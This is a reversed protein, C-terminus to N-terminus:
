PTPVKSTSSPILRSSSTASPSPSQKSHCLAAAAPNDAECELIKPRYDPSVLRWFLTAKSFKSAVVAPRKRFKISSSELLGLLLLLLFLLLLLELLLQNGTSDIGSYAVISAARDATLPKIYEWILALVSNTSAAPHYDKLSNTGATWSVLHISVTCQHDHSATGTHQDIYLIIIRDQPIIRLQNRLILDFLSISVTNNTNLETPIRTSGPPEFITIITAFPKSYLTLRSAM